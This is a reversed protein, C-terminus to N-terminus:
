SYLHLSSGGGLYLDVTWRRDGRSLVEAAALVRHRGYLCNLRYGVLFELEPYGDRPGALLREASLGSDALASTLQQEDITAPIHNAIDLRDCGNAERFSRKLRTINEEDWERSQESPFDLVDIKVSATGRYKLSRQAALKREQEQFRSRRMTFTM